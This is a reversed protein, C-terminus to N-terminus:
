LRHPLFALDKQDLLQQPMRARHKLARLLELVREQVEEVRGVGRRELLRQATELRGQRLEQLWHAQGRHGLTGLHARPREVEGRKREFARPVLPLAAGRRLPLRVVRAVDVRAADLVRLLGLRGVEHAVGRVRLAADLHRLAIELRPVAGKAVLEGTAFLRLRRRAEILPQLRLADVGIPQVVAEGVLLLPAPLKRLRDDVVHPGVDGLAKVMLQVGRLGFHEVSVTRRDGGLVRQALRVALLALRQEELQVRAEALHHAVAREGLAIGVLPVTPVKGLPVLMRTARGEPVEPLALIRGLVRCAHGPDPVEVGGVGLDGARPGDERLLVVLGLQIGEGGVELPHGAQAGPALQRGDCRLIHLIRRVPVLVVVVAVVVGARAVRRRHALLPRRTLIGLGGRRVLAVLLLRLLLGLAVVVRVLQAQLVLARRM